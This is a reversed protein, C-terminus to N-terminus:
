VNDPPARRRRLYLVLGTLAVATVLLALAFSADGTPTTIQPPPPPPPPPPAQPVVHVTIAQFAAGDLSDRVTLCVVIDTSVNTRLREPSSTSLVLTADRSAVPQSIGPPRGPPCLAWAYALASGEPDVALATLTLTGNVEVTFNPPSSIVDLSPNENVRIVTSATTTQGGLERVSVEVTSAGRELYLTAEFQASWRDETAAKLDLATSPGFDAQGPAKVRYTAAGPATDLGRQAVGQPSGEHADVLLTVSALPFLSTENPLISAIVPALSDVRIQFPESYFPGAGATNSARWQIWNADGDLIQVARYMFVQRTDSTFGDCVFCAAQWSGFYFPGATSVRYEISFPDIGSSGSVIEVSAVVSSSNQWDDALPLANAFTINQTDVKLGWIPSEAPGNGAMDWARWIMNSLNGEPLDLFARGVVEALTQGPLAEAREWRVFPAGDNEWSVEIRSPDVGSENDFISAAVLTPSATVWESELPLHDGFAPAAADVHVTVNYRSVGAISPPGIFTAYAVWELQTAAPATLGTSLNGSYVPGFVSGPGGIRGVLMWEVASTPRLGGSGVFQVSLNSTFNVPAGGRVWGGSAIARGDSEVLLDGVIETASHLVAARPNYVRESAVGNLWGAELGFYVGSPFSWGFRVAVSFFWVAGGPGDGHGFSTVADPTVWAPDSSTATGASADIDLHLPASLGTITIRFTPSELTTQVWGSVTYNRYEPYVVLGPDTEMDIQHVARLVTSAYLVAVFGSTATRTREPANGGFYGVTIDHRGDGDFDSQLNLRLGNEGSYIDPGEIVIESSLSPVAGKDADLGECPTPPDADGCIFPNLFVDVLLHGTTASTTDYKLVAFDLGGGGDIDGVQLRSPPQGAFVSPGFLDVFDSPRPEWGTARWFQVNVHLHPSGLGGPSPSVLGYSGLDEHGDGNFDGLFVQPTDVFTELAHAFDPGSATGNWVRILGPSAGSSAPPGPPSWTVIETLGDGNLDPAAIFHPPRPAASLPVPEQASWHIREGVAARSHLRVVTFTTYAPVTGDPSREYTQEILVAATDGAQVPGTLYASAPPEGVIRTSVQLSDGSGGADDFVISASEQECPGGVVCVRLGGSPEILLDDRGDEDADVAGPRSDKAIPLGPDLYSPCSGTCLLPEKSLTATPPLGTSSGLVVTYRQEASSGSHFIVLDGFGDGNFDGVAEFLDRTFNATGPLEIITWDPAVVELAEFSAAAPAPAM